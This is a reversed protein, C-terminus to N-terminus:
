EGRPWIFLLFLTLILVAIALLVGAWVGIFVRVAILTVFLLVIAFVPQRWDSQGGDDKNQSCKKMHDQARM